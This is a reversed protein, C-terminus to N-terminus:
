LPQGSRRSAQPGVATPPEGRNPDDCLQLGAAAFEGVVGADVCGVSREGSKPGKFYSLDLNALFMLTAIGQVFAGISVLANWNDWGRGPEYTYIRRPM